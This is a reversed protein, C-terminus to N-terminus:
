ATELEYAAQRTDQYGNFREALIVLLPMIVAWGVGIAAMAAFTNSFEVAGLRHGALYALPGGVAGFLSALIYKGKMWKMSVNLTTAFLAWMAIIWYPAIANFILGNDFQLIGAITLSSDWATGIVISLGLLIIENRMEIARYLHIAVIAAVVAVGAWSYNANAGGMVCCLWGLQFLIFNQVTHSLSMKNVM